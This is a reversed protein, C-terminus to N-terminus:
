LTPIYKKNLTLGQKMYKGFINRYRFSIENKLEYGSCSSIMLALLFLILPYSFYKTWGAKQGSSEKQLDSLSTKM